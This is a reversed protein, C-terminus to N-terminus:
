GTVRGSDVEGRWAGTAVGREEVLQKFRELDARVRRKDLGLASGAQEAAGEPPYEMRVNVRTSDPSLRQFTVVGSNDKGEISRWEIREDPRQEVIKADWERRKGGVTAVWHLLTDDLQRVEEVGDMFKAFEEFQTWQNYATAVPVDVDISEEITSTSSMPADSGLQTRAGGIKGSIWRRTQSGTKPNFLATLVLGVLALLLNRKKHSRKGRLREGAERLEDAMRKVDAQLEEDRAIRFAPAALGGAPFARRRARDGARLGALAHERLKEDSKLRKAYPRSMEAPKRTRKGIGLM